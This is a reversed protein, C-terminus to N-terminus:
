DTSAVSTTTASGSGPGNAITVVLDNGQAKTEYTSPRTLDIVVRTRGAAEVASVGATAGNNIEIRRQAVAKPTDAIDVAIRPPNETAFIRPEAVPGAFKLTVQVKGGPLPTYAIDQLVNEAFSSASVLLGILVILWACGTATRRRVASSRGQFDCSNSTM